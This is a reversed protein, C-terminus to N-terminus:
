RSVLVGRNVYTRDAVQDVLFAALDTRSIMPIGRLTLREGMRYTGTWPGNTLTSPYVLTWDLGSRRLVTEGALKDAYLDRLMVAIMLRPILPTDRYTDGVGYAQTFVLRRVGAQEMAQVIVPAAAEILGAPKLSGGVGLASVVADQGDVAEGVARADRVDGVIVRVRNTGPPLRGAGRVLATVDYGKAMAQTVVQRGTGGTAGLVLLKKM